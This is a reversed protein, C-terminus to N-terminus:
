LASGTLQYVLLPLAFGTFSDGLSSIAQGVWFKWFDASAGNHGTSQLDTSMRCYSTFLGRRPSIPREEDSIDTKWELTSSSRWQWSLTRPYYSCERLGTARVM